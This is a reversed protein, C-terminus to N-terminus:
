APVLGEGIRGAAVTLRRDASISWDREHVSDLLRWEAVCAEHTLEVKLWGRRDTEMYVLGPNLEL